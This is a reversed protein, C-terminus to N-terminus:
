LEQWDQATKIGDRIRIHRPVYRRRRKEGVFWLLLRAAVACIAGFFAGILLIGLGVGTSHWVPPWAAGYQSLVVSWLGCAGCAWVVAFPVTWTLASRMVAPPILASVDPERPEDM